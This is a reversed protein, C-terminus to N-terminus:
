SSPMTLTLTKLESSVPKDVTRVPPLPKIKRGHKGSKRQWWGSRPRYGLERLRNPSGIPIKNHIVNSLRGPYHEVCHVLTGMPLAGLPYADGENARVPIRPIHGSTKIIDGPKMNETALYYKLEDGGAILAVKATRCGDDIIQIVREEIPEGEKPGVRKWHIWHYKHKIGGGIGKAIRRGTEPDRGGLNRVTLPEVTYKEPFNVRRRFAIGAGPKPLEHKWIREEKSKGFKPCETWICKIAIQQVFLPCKTCSDGAYLLGARIGTKILMTAFSMIHNKKTLTDLGFLCLFIFYIFEDFFRSVVVFEFCFWWWNSSIVVCRCPVRDLPRHKKFWIFTALM